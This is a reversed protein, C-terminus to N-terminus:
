AKTTSLPPAEGGPRKAKPAAAPKEAPAECLHLYQIEAETFPENTSPNLGVRRPIEPDLLCARRTSTKDAGPIPKGLGMLVCNISGWPGRIRFPKTGEIRSWRDTGLNAADFEAEAACIFYTFGVRGGTRGLLSPTLDGTNAPGLKPIRDYTYADTTLNPEPASM